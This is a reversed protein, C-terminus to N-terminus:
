EPLPHLKCEILEFSIMLFTVLKRNKAIMQRMNMVHDIFVKTQSHVEGLKARADDVPMAFIVGPNDSDPEPPTALDPLAEIAAQATEDRSDLCIVIPEEMEDELAQVYCQEIREINLSLFNRREEDPDFDGPNSM